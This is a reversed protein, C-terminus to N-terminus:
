FLVATCILLWPALTGRNSTRQKNPNTTTKNPHKELVLDRKTATTAQILITGWPVYKFAQDGPSFASNSLILLYLRM